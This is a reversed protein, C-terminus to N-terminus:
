LALLSVTRNWSDPERVANLPVEWTTTQLGFNEGREKRGNSYLQTCTFLEENDPLLFSFFFQTGTRADLQTTPVSPTSSTSTRETARVSTVTLASPETGGKNRLASADTM